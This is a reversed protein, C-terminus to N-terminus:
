PLTWRASLTPADSVFRVALGASQRSLNWVADRVKKQARAPLRDYFGLTDAFAKGEVPLTKVDTWVLADADRTAKPGGSSATRPLFALGLLALLLYRLPTM